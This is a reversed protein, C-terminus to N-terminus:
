KFNNKNKDKSKTTEGYKQLKNIWNKYKEIDKEDPPFLSQSKSFFYDLFENPNLAKLHLQLRREINLSNSVNDTIDGTNYKQFVKALVSFLFDDFYDSYVNQTILNLWLLFISGYDSYPIMFINQFVKKFKANASWPLSSTGMLMIKDEKQIAKLLKKVLVDKLLTPKIDIQDKPVKKWFVRHADQIFIITPQYAKAVKIVVNILYQLNGNFKYTKEPSLNMFIAGLESAIINCLLKKGSKEPGILCLSKPKDVNFKGMGFMCDQIAFKIDAKAANVTVIHSEDRSDDALVNFDGVYDSFSKIAYDEIIKAERLEQYLCENTRNATLDKTPKVKIKKVKKGKQKIPKYKKKNDLSWAKKLLEYEIRMYEDVLGRLEKHIIVLEDESVWEKVLDNNKNLYEDIYKWDTIFQSFTEEIKGVNNNDRLEQGIDCIGANSMKQQRLKEKQMEKKMKEKEKKEQLKQKEMLNKKEEKSLAENMKYQRFEDLDMTEDLLMQITGSNTADPFPHFDGTADYFEKFWSRIQDSIDEMIQPKHEELLRTYETAMLEFYIKDFEKQKLDNQYIKLMIDKYKGPYLLTKPKRLGYINQRNNETIKFNRKTRYCKWVRQIILAANNMTEIESQTLGGIQLEEVFETELNSCKNSKIFNTNFITRKIPILPLEDKKHTFTYTFVRDKNVKLFNPNYEINYKYRRAQRAREHSQIIMIARTNSNQETLKNQESPYELLTTQIETPRRYIFRQFDWILLDYPTLSHETLSKDLYVFDNLETKKLQNKLELLRELAPEVLNKLVARKQVQFTETHLYSLKSVIEAYLIYMQSLIHFILIPDEVPEVKKLENQRKILHELNRKTTNWIKYNLDFSM